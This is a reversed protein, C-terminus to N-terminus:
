SDGFKVNWYLYDRWMGLVIDVGITFWVFPPSM